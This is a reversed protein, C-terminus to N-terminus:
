IIALAEKELHCYQRKAAALTRSVYAIPCETGDEFCHALVAGISYPSADYCLVLQVEPDHHALLESSSLQTKVTEFAQQQQNNWTWKAGKALLKHLPALTTSLSLLFNGYYSILRLFAKLKNVNWPSPAKTVAEVKSESPQLGDKTIKHGLYEVAFM